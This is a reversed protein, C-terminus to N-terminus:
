DNVVRLNCFAAFEGAGNYRDGGFDQLLYWFPVEYTDGVKYEYGGLKNLRTAGSETLEVSVTRNVSEIVVPNTM